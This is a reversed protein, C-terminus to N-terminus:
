FYMNELHQDDVLNKLVLKPCMQWFLHKKRGVHKHNKNMWQGAATSVPNKESIIFRLSQTPNDSEPVKQLFHLSMTSTIEAMTSVSIPSLFKPKSERQSAVHSVSQQLMCVGAPEAALPAEGGSERSALCMAYLMSIYVLSFYNLKNNIM